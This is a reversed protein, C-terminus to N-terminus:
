KRRNLKCLILLTKWLIKLDYFISRNELYQLDLRILDTPNDGDTGQIFWLGTIGPRADLIPQYACPENKPFTLPDLPRPGVLSMEGKLINFLRPLEGLKTKRFFHERSPFSQTDPTRFKLRYFRKGGYGIKEERIFIPRGSSLLLGISIILFIPSLLIIAILSAGLDILRRVTEYAFHTWSARPFGDESYPAISLSGDPNPKVKWNFFVQSSEVPNQLNSSHAAKATPPPELRLNKLIVPAGEIGYIDQVQNIPYASLTINQLFHPAEPHNQWDFSEIFKQSLKEIVYKAGELPTDMLLIGVKFGDFITKIDIDRTNESIDLLIKRFINSYNPENWENSGPERRPFHILVFTLPTRTRESRRKERKILESFDKEPYWGCDLKILSQWFKNASNEKRGQALSSHFPLIKEGVAEVIGPSVKPKRHAVAQHLSALCIENILGPYGGSFQHIKDISKKPFLPNGTYGAIELNYQIYERTEEWNLPHLEERVRILKNLPEFKPISLREVIESQGVLLVQLLKRTSTELQALLPLSQLLDNEMQQVNDIILVHNAGQVTKQLLHRYLLNIFDENYLKKSTNKIHFDRCLNLLFQFPSVHVNDVYAFRTTTPLQTILHRILATKGVGTGGYLLMFGKRLQIGMLIREVSRLQNAGFWYLAPDVGMSFPKQKLVFYELLM